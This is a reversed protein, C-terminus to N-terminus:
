TVTIKSLRAHICWTASKDKLNLFFSKHVSIPRDGECCKHLIATRRIDPMCPKSHTTESTDNSSYVGDRWVLMIASAFCRLLKDGIEKKLQSASGRLSIKAKIKVFVFTFPSTFVSLVCM